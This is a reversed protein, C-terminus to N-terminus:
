KQPKTKDESIKKYLATEKNHMTQREAQVRQAIQDEQEAIRERYSLHLQQRRESVALEFESNLHQRMSVMQDSVHQLLHRHAQESDFERGRRTQEVVYNHHASLEQRIAAVKQQAM